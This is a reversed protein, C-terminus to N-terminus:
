SPVFSDAAAAAAATRRKHAANALVAHLEQAQRLKADAMAQAQQLQQGLEQNRAQLARIREMQPGPGEQPNPPGPLKTVLAQLRSTCGLLEDAFGAARAPADYPKPPRPAILAEGAVSVPEADRQLEGVTGYLLESFRNLEMALLTVLDAHM